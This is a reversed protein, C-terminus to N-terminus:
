LAHRRHIYKVAKVGPPDKRSFHPVKPGFRSSFHGAAGRPRGFRSFWAKQRPSGRTIMPPRTTRMRRALATTRVTPSFVKGTRRFRFPGVLLKVQRFVGRVTAGFEDGVARVSRSLSRYELHAMMVRWVTRGGLGSGWSFKSFAGPLQESRTSHPESTM